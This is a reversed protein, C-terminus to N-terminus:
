TCAPTLLNLVFSNEPRRYREEKYSKAQKFEHSALWIKTESSAWELQNRNRALKATKERHIDLFNQSNRM